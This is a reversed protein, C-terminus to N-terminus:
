REKDYRFLGHMWRCSNDHCLFRSSGGPLADIRQRSQVDIIGQGWCKREGGEKGEDM